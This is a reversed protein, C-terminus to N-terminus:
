RKVVGYADSDVYLVAHPHRRLASAPCATTIPGFLASRVAERKSPGPVGGYVFRGSMLAPITLTLAHSPVADIEPFCGDNVQQQRCREDLEVPKIIDPDHFDAVPPDNFGLHGNEGIGLCVLDIPAQRILAAYRECEKAVSRTPAMFHVRGPRVASFLHEELYRSFRQPAEEPLGLYEDMHFATIRSWDIDPERGLHDLFENQSPASAFIMRVRDQKSLLEKIKQAVERGAAEGMAKRDAYICVELQDVKRTQMPEPIM